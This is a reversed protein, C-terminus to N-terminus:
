FICKISLVFNRGLEDAYYRFRNTYERYNNNLINEAAIRFDYQVKKGKMSIGSSVNWLFYGDPAPM